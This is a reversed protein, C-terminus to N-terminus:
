GCRGTGGVGHLTILRLNPDGILQMLRALEDERDVLPTLAHPLNHAPIDETGLLNLAQAKTVAETRNSVYLKGFVQKMYWKVTNLTLGTREAIAKNTLGDAALGLIEIERENLDTEHTNLM